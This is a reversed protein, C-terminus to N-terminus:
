SVAAIIRPLSTLHGREHEALWDGYYHVSREYVMRPPVSVAATREWAERPLPGLVELLAARGAVFADFAQKFELDHYGSKRQWTRPSMARWRPHDEAIIRRAAGGLVDDCARLHALVDNVSWSGPEPPAHLQEATLSETLEALRPVTTELIAMIEEVGLVANPM